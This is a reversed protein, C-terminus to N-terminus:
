KIDLSGEEVDRVNIRDKGILRSILKADSTDPLTSEQEVIPTILIEYVKAVDELLDVKALLILTSADFVIMYLLISCSYVFDLKNRDSRKIAQLEM